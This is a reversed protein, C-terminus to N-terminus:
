EWTVLWKPEFKLHVVKQQYLTCQFPSLWADAPTYQFTYCVFALPNWIFFMCTKNNLPGYFMCMYWFLVFTNAYEFVFLCTKFSRILYPNLQASSMIFSWQYFPVFSWKEKNLIAAFTNRQRICRMSNCKLPFMWKRKEHLRTSHSKLYVSELSKLFLRLVFLM